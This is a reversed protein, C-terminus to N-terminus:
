QVVSWPRAAWRASSSRWQGHILCSGPAQGRGPKPETGGGIDGGKVWNDPHTQRTPPHSGGHWEGESRRLVQHREMANPHHLCSNYDVIQHHISMIGIQPSHIPAHAHSRCLLPFLTLAPSPPTSRPQHHSFTIQRRKRRRCGTRRRRRRVRDDDRLGDRIGSNHEICPSCNQAEAAHKTKWLGPKPMPSSEAAM